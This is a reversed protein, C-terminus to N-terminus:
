EYSFEGNKTRRNSRPVDVDFPNGARNIVRDICHLVARHRRYHRLQAALCNIWPTENFDAGVGYTNVSVNFKPL